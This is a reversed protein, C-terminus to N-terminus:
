AFVSLYLPHNQNMLRWYDLQFPYLNKTSFLWELEYTAINTQSVRNEDLFNKPSFGALFPYEGLSNRYISPNSKTRPSILIEDMLRYIWGDINGAIKMQSFFKSGYNRLHFNPKQPSYQRNEAQFGQLNEVNQLGFIWNQSM